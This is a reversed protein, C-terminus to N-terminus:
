IAKVYNQEYRHILSVGLASIAIGVVLWIGLLPLNPATKYLFVNRMENMFMAVPNLTLLLTSYPKPVRKTVNFFVGSLYFVLRLFVSVINSFDRAYVGIHLVVCCLGFTVVLLDAMIVPLWLIYWSFEVKDIIAVILGLGLTILFQIMNEFLTSFLLIYKPLYIRSLVSKNSRVLKVSQNVSRNFFNWAGLGVFVFPVFHPESRGFVVLSIFSYVMMFLFPDLIWWLWNFYSGSVDARLSAVASYAAYGKYRRLNELFQKM